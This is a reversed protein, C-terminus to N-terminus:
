ASMLLGVSPTPCTSLCTHLMCMSQSARGPAAKVVRRPVRQERTRRRRRRPRAERVQRRRRRPSPEADRQRAHRELVKAPEGDGLEPQVREAGDGAEHRAAAPQAVRRRCPSSFLAPVPFPYPNVSAPSKQPPAGVKPDLRPTPGRPFPSLSCPPRRAPDLYGAKRLVDGISQHFLFFSGALTM